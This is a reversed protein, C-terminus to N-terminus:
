RRFLSRPRWAALLRRALPTSRKLAAETREFSSIARESEAAGPRGPGWAAHGHASALPVLEPVTVAAIEDPTMAETVPRDLDRLRDTIEAWAASIDGHRARALRRRRRVWKAIPIAAVAVLAVLAWWAETPLEFPTTAADSPAPGDLADPTPQEGEFLEALGDVVRDENFDIVGSDPLDSLRNQFGEEIYTALNVGGLDSTTAPNDGESRPTPDFRVWGVGDIWAEVWSHANRGQVEVLTSDPDRGVVQGPSFGLVLRTPIGLARAMVGMATAFQECYGQRYNPSEPELLWDALDSAAHGTEIETTYGFGGAGRFYLELLHLRELPHTTGVTISSALARIGPDLSDPLETFRDLDEPEVTSGTGTTRDIRIDGAAVAREFLEPLDGDAGLAVDILTDAPVDAEIEYELNKRTLGTSLRLGGDNRARVGHDLLPSTGKNAFSRVSYITPLIGMRLGDIRIRAAVRETKGQYRHDPREFMVNGDVARSTDVTPVWNRGDYRDLTVLPWYLRAPDVNGSVRAQFVVSESQNVLNTQVASAYLNVSGGGSGFPGTDRWDVSGSGPVAGRALGTAVFGIVVVLVGAMLVGARGPTGLVRPATATEEWGAVALLLGVWAVAGLVWWGSSPTQDAIAVALYLGAPVVAAAVGRGEAALWAWAFGVASFAPFLLLVFSPVPYLPATGFRLAELGLTLQASIASWTDFTPVIGAYMSEPDVLRGMAAALVLLGIAASGALRIRLARGIAVVAVGLVFAGGLVIQWATGDETPSVLTGMRLFGAALAVLGLLASWAGGLKLRRGV